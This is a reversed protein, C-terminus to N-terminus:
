LFAFNILFLSSFLQLLLCPLRFNIPSPFFISLLYIGLCISIPIHSVFLYSLLFESSVFSYHYSIFYFASSYFQSTYSLFLHDHAFPFLSLLISTLLPLLFLHIFFPTTLGTQAIQIIFSTTQRRLLMTCVRPLLNRQLRTGGSHDSPLVSM